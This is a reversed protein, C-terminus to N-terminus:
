LKELLGQQAACALHYRYGSQFPAVEGVYEVYTTGAKIPDTCRVHREGNHGGHCLHEKGAKRIIVSGDDMSPKIRYSELTAM